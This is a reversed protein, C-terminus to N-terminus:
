LLRCLSFLGNTKLFFYYCCANRGLVFGVGVFRCYTCCLSIYFSFFFVLAVGSMHQPCIHQHITMYLSYRACVSNLFCFPRKYIVLISSKQLICFGTDLAHLDTNLEESYQYMGNSFATGSFQKKFYVTIRGSLPLVSSIPM